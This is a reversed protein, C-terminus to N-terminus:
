EEPLRRQRDVCDLARNSVSDMTDELTGMRKLRRWTEERVVVTKMTSAKEAM